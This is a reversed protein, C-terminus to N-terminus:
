LDFYNELVRCANLIKKVVDTEEEFEQTQAEEKAAQIVAILAQEVKIPISKAM